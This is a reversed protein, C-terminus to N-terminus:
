LYGELARQVMAKYEDKVNQPGIIKMAGDWGFVWRYFTPSPSVTVKAKFHNEDVEETEVSTGFNDIIANM